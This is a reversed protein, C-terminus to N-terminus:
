HSKYWFEFEDLMEVLNQYGVKERAKSFPTWELKEIGEETEPKLGQRNNSLSMAYWHTTKGIQRGDEAYEHYTTGLKGRIEPLSSGIEESVERRACEAISENEEMKGKPLDWVGRRFMLLIEANHQEGEAERFVVGGAATVKEM